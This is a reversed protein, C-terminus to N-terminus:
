TFYLNRFYFILDMQRYLLSSVSEELTINQSNLKISQVLLDGWSRQTQDYAGWSKFFPDTSSNSSEPKQTQLARLRHCHRQAPLVLSQSSPCLNTDTPVQHFIRGSEAFRHPTPNGDTIGLYVTRTVVWPQLRHHNTQISFNVGGLIM